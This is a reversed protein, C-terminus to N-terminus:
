RLISNANLNLIVKSSTVLFFFDDKRWVERNRNLAGTDKWDCQNTVKSDDEVGGKGKGRM